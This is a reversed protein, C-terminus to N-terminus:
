SEFQEEAATMDEISGETFISRGNRCDYTWSSEVNLKVENIQVIRGSLWRCDVEDIGAQWYINHTEGNETLSVRIAQGVRNEFHYVTMVREGNASPIEEVFDGNPVDDISFVLSDRVMFVMNLIVILFTVAYVIKFGIKNM